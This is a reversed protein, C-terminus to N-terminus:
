RESHDANTVGLLVRLNTIARQVDEVTHKIREMDLDNNLKSEISDIIEDFRDEPMVLINKAREGNIQYVEVLSDIAVTVGYRSDYNFESVTLGDSDIEVDCDQLHDPLNKLDNFLDNLTTM